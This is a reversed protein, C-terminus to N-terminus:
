ALEADIIAVLEDCQQQPIAGQQCLRKLQRSTTQLDDKRISRHTPTSPVAGCAVCRGQKVGYRAGCQSCPKGSELEPAEGAMSRFFWAAVLWLGHGIVMIGLLVAAAVCFFEAM